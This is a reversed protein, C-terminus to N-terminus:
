LLGHGLDMLFIDYLSFCIPPRSSAPAGIRPHIPICGIRVVPSSQTCGRRTPPFSTDVRCRVTFHTTRCADRFPIGSSSELWWWSFVRLGSALSKIHIHLGLFPLFHTLTGRCVLNRKCRYCRVEMMWVSHSPRRVRDSRICFFWGTRPIARVRTSRIRM